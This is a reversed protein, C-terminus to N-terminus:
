GGCSLSLSHAASYFLGGVSGANAEDLIREVDGGIVNARPADGRYEARMFGAHDSLFVAPDHSTAGSSAREFRVGFGSGVAAKVAAESGSLVRWQEGAIGHAEAFQMLAAPNEAADVVIAILRV